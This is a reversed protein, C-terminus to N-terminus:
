CEESQVKSVLIRRSTWQGPLMGVLMFSFIRVDDLGLITQLSMRVAAFSLLSVIM